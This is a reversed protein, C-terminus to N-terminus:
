RAAASGATDDLRGHDLNLRRAGLREVLRHDHSAIVITVGVENFREFLQMIELSLDPDLNGTPEDAILIDPKSVVARAIGVRQQEGTSLQVPPQKEKGLLGVQDLAARV